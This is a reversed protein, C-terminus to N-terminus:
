KNEINIEISSPVYTLLNIQDPVTFMSQSIDIQYRGSTQYQGLDLTLVVDSSNIKNILNIPGTVLANILEPNISKIRLHDSLNITNIKIPLQKTSNNREIKFDVRVLNVQDVLSIGPPIDLEINTTLNRNINDINIPRTELYTLSRLISSSGTITVVDPLTSIESIWYDQNVKGTTNIKIGVTKTNEAQIIPLEVTIEEPNFSIGSIREGESGIAVLKVLRTISDNEGNLRLVASAEPIKDIITQAGIIEVTEPDINPVGYTMGEAPDGEIKINVPVNKTKKPEIRILVKKPSFDEIEVDSIETSVEVDIEYTGSSRNKLDIYARISDSSVKSWINKEAALKVSIKDIDSIVVMDDAVNKYELVVGGPVNDVKVGTSSLYTWFGLALLICILKIKWNNFISKIM